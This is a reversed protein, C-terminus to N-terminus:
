SDEVKDIFKYFSKSAIDTCYGTHIVVLQFHINLVTHLNKRHRKDAIGLALSWLISSCNEFGQNRDNIM